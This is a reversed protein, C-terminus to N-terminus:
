GIFIGVENILSPQESPLIQLSPDPFVKATISKYPEYLQRNWISIPLQTESTEVPHVDVM